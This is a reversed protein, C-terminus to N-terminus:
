SVVTEYQFPQGARKANSIWLGGRDLRATRGDLHVLLHNPSRDAGRARVTDRYFDNDVEEGQPGRWELDRFRIRPPGDPAHSGRVHRLLWRAGLSFTCSRGCVFSWVM